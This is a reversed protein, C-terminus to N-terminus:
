KKLVTANTEFCADEERFFTGIDEHGVDGSGGKFLGGGLELLEDGRGVLDIDLHTGCKRVM